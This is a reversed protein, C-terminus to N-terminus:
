SLFASLAQGVIGQPLLMLLGIDIVDLTENHNEKGVDNPITREDTKSEMINGMSTLAFHYTISVSRVTRCYWTDQM